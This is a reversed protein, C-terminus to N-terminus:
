SLADQLLGDGGGPLKDGNLGCLEARRAGMLLARNLELVVVTARETPTLGEIRTGSETWTFHEHEVSRHTRAAREALRDYLADPVQVTLPHASLSSGM